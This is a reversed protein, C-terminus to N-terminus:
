QLRNRGRDGWGDLISMDKARVRKRQGKDIVIGGLFFGLFGLFVGARMANITCTSTPLTRVLHPLLSAQIM